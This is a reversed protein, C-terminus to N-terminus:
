CINVFFFYVFHFPRVGVPIGSTPIGGFAPAKGSVIERLELILFVIVNFARWLGHCLACLTAKTGATAKETSKRDRRHHDPRESRDAYNDQYCGDMGVVHWAFHDIEDVQWCVSGRATGHIAQACRELLKDVVGRHPCVDHSDRSLISVQHCCDLHPVRVGCMRTCVVFERPDQTNPFVCHCVFRDRPCEEAYQHRCNRHNVHNDGVDDVSSQPATILSDKVFLDVGVVAAIRIVVYLHEFQVAIWVVHNLNHALV